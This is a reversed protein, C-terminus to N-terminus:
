RMAKLSGRFWGQQEIVQLAYVSCSPEHRCGVNTGGGSIAHLLPFVLVRYTRWAFRLFIM